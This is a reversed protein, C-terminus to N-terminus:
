AYFRSFVPRPIDGDVSAESSMDHVTNMTYTM